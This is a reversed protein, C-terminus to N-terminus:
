GGRQSRSPFCWKSEGLHWRLSLSHLHQFIDVNTKRATFLQVKIWLFARMNSLLGSGGSGTGALFYVVCYIVLYHWPIKSLDKESLANVVKSYFIPVAVKVFRIAILNALALVIALQLLPDHKPWMYPWLFKLKKLSNKFTSREYDIQFDNESEDQSLFYELDGSRIPTRRSNKPLGPAYFGICIVVLIYLIRFALLFIEVKDLSDSWDFHWKSVVMNILPVLEFLFAVFWFCFIHFSHSFKPKKSRDLATLTECKLAYSALWWALKNSTLLIPWMWSFEHNFSLNALLLFGYNLPYLFNLWVFIKYLGPFKSKRRRLNVVLCEGDPLNGNEPSNNVETFADSNQNQENPVSPNAFELKSKKLSWPRIFIIRLLALLVLFIPFFINSACTSFGCNKDFFPYFNQGRPCFPYM